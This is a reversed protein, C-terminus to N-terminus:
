WRNQRQGGNTEVTDVAVLAIKKPGPKTSM